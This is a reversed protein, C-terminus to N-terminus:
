EESRSWGPLARLFFQNGLELLFEVLGVAQKDRDRFHGQIALFHRLARPARDFQDAFSTLGVLFEILCRRGLAQGLRTIDVFDPDTRDTPDPRAWSGTDDTNM